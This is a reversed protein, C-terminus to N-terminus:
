DPAMGKETLEKIAEDNKKLHQLGMGKLVYPAKTFQINTYGIIEVRNGWPDMFDLFRGSLEEIGLEKLRARVMEKDEVVLGFHRNDDAPQKRGKFFNIFQDGLDIFAADESRNRLEFEVFSGYFELAEDIDGVEIAIHNIGLARAKKTESM